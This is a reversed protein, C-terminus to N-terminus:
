DMDHYLCGVTDDGTYSSRAGGVLWNYLVIGTILTHYNYDCCKIASFPSGVLSAGAPLPSPLGPPSMVDAFGDVGLTNPAIGMQLFNDSSLVITTYADVVTFRRVAINGTSQITNDDLTNTLAIAAQEGSSGTFIPGLFAGSPTKYREGDYTMGIKAKGAGGIGTVHVPTILEAMPQTSLFSGMGDVTPVSVFYVPWFEGGEVEARPSTPMSTELWSALPLLFAEKPRAFLCLMFVFLSIVIFAKKM